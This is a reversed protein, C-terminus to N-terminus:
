FYDGQRRERESRVMGMPSMALGWFDPTEQWSDGTLSPRQLSSKNEVKDTIETSLPSYFMSSPFKLSLRFVELRAKHATQFAGKDTATMQGSSTWHASNEMHEQSYHGLRLRQRFCPLFCRFLTCETAPTKLRWMLSALAAPIKNGVKPFVHCTRASRHVFFIRHLGPGPASDPNHCYQSLSSVLNITQIVTHSSLSM